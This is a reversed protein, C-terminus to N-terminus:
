FFDETGKRLIGPRILWVFCEPEAIATFKYSGTSRLYGRPNWPGEGLDNTVRSCQLFIYVKEGERLEVTEKIRELEGLSCLYTPSLM